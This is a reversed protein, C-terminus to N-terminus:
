VHARGIQTKHLDRRLVNRGDGRDAVNIEFLDAIVAVVVADRVRRGDPGARVENVGRSHAKAAMGQGNADPITGVDIASLGAVSTETQLCATLM